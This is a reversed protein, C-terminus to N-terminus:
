ILDDRALLRNLHLSLFVLEDKTSTWKKQQYLYDAIKEAIQFSKPYTTLVLHYLAENQDTTAVSGNLQRILYYRLHTLFRAVNMEETDIERGISEFVLRTIGSILQTIELTENLSLQEDQTNVFHLAISIAEENDLRTHYFAQILLIAQRGIAVEKPYFQKVEFSLPSTIVVGNNHREIAFEIHDALAIVTSFGIKRNLKSRAIDVIKNALLLADESLDTLMDQYQHLLRKSSSDSAYFTEDILTQDVTDGPKKNFSIGAGMVIFEKEDDKVLAVNNNLKKKIIM